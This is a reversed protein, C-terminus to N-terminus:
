WFISCRPLPSILSVRLSRAGSNFESAECAFCCPLMGSTTALSAVCVMISERVSIGNTSSISIHWFSLLSTHLIHVRTCIYGSSLYGRLLKRTSGCGHGRGFGARRTRHALRPRSQNASVQVTSIQLRDAVLDTKIQALGSPAGLDDIARELAAKDYSGLGMSWQILFELKPRNQLGKVLTDDLQSWLECLDVPSPVPLEKERLAELFALDLQHDKPRDSFINMWAEMWKEPDKKDVKSSHTLMRTAVEINAEYISALAICKQEYRYPAYPDAGANLLIDLAQMGKQHDCLRFSSVLGSMPAHGTPGNVDLGLKIMKRLCSLKGKRAAYAAVTLDSTLLKSQFRDGHKWLVDLAKAWGRKVVFASLPGSHVVNSSKTEVVFLQTALIPCQEVIEVLKAMDKDEIARVAQGAFGSKRAEATTKEGIMFTNTRIPRSSM